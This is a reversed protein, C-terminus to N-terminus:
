TSKSFLEFYKGARKVAAHATLSSPWFVPVVADMDVDFANGLYPKTIDKIGIVSPDGIHVVTGILTELRSTVAVTRELLRKPIPFMCVVLPSGFAGAEKCMINTKYHPVTKMNGESADLIGTAILEEEIHHSISAIYFAVMDNWPFQTLNTVREVEHGNKLVHYFPLM